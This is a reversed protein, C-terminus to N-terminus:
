LRRPYHGDETLQRINAAVRTHDERYTLDFWTDACRLVKVRLRGSELLEAITDPIYSEANVDTGHREIFNKFQEALSLQDHNSGKKLDTANGRGSIECVALSQCFVSGHIRRGNM